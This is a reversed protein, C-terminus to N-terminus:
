KELWRSMTGYDSTAELQREKPRGKVGRPGRSAGSSVRSGRTSGEQLTGAGRRGQQNEMQLEGQVKQPSRYQYRVQFMDKLNQSCCKDAGAVTRWAFWLISQNSGQAPGKVWVQSYLKSIQISKGRNARVQKTVQDQKPFRQDWLQERQGPDECAASNEVDRPKKKSLRAESDGATACVHKELCNSRHTRRSHIWPARASQSQDTALCIKDRIPRFSSWSAM